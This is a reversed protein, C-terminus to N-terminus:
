VRGLTEVDRWKGDGTCLNFTDLCRRQSKKRKEKGRLNGMGWWSAFTERWYQKTSGGRGGCRRSIPFQVMHYEYSIQSLLPGVYYDYHISIKCFSVLPCNTMAVSLLQYVFKKHTAIVFSDCVSKGSCSCGSLGRNNFPQNKDQGRECAM